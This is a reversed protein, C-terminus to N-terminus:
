SKLKRYEPKMRYFPFTQIFPKEEIRAPPHKRKATPLKPEVVKPRTSRATMPFLIPLEASVIGRARETGEMRQFFVHARMREYYAKPSVLYEGAPLSALCELDAISLADKRKSLQNRLEAVTKRPVSRTNTLMFQFEDVPEEIIPLERYAALLNVSSFQIQRLLVTTLQRVLLTRNGNEDKGEIKVRRNSIPAITAKLEDKLRNINKADNLLRRPVGVIGYCRISRNVRDDLQYELQQIATSARQRSHSTSLTSFGTLVNRNEKTKDQYIADIVIVPSVAVQNPLPTPQEIEKCFASLQTTLARLKSAVPAKFKDILKQTQNSHM